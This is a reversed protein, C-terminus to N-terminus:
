ARNYNKAKRRAHLLFPLGLAFIAMSTPEPAPPPGVFSTTLGYKNALYFGVDNMETTTLARGFVIVEAIDGQYDQLVGTANGIQFNSIPDLQYNPSSGLGSFISLPDATGDISHEINNLAARLTGIHFAADNITATGRYGNTGDYTSGNAANGPIGKTYNRFDTAGGTANIFRRNDTSNNSNFVVFYTSQEGSSFTVPTNFGDDIGDFEIVRHTGSGFIRDRLIPGSTATGDNNLAGSDQWLVVTDGPAAALSGAKEVGVDARLWMKLNAISSPMTVAFAQNSEVHFCVFALMVSLVSMSYRANFNM